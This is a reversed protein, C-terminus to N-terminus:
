IEFKLGTEYLFHIFMSHLNNLMNEQFWKQGKSFPVITIYFPSRLLELLRSGRYGGGLGFLAESLVKGKVVRDWALCHLGLCKSQVTCYLVTSYLVTSYQVTCYQVTSYLVTCYQVTSCQGMDYAAFIGLNGHGM